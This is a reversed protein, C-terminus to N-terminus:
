TAAEAGGLIQSVLSSNEDSSRVFVLLEGARVGDSLQEAAQDELGFDALADKLGNGGAPMSATKAIQEAMEGAAYLEGASNTKVPQQRGLMADLGSVTKQGVAKTSDVDITRQNVDWASEVAIKQALINIDEKDINKDMLRDVAKKADDYKQILAFVTQM